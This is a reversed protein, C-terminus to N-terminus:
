AAAHVGEENPNEIAAEGRAALPFVGVDFPMEGEVRAVLLLVTDLSSGRALDEDDRDGVEFKEQRWCPCVFSSKEGTPLQNSHCVHGSLVGGFGIRSGIESRLAGLQRPVARQERPYAGRKRQYSGSDGEVLSDLEQVLPAQGGSSSPDILSCPHVTGVNHSYAQRGDARQQQCNDGPIVNVTNTLECPDAM